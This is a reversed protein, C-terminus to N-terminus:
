FMFFIINKITQKIDNEALASIFLIHTTSKPLSQVAASDYMKSFQSLFLTRKQYSGTPCISNIAFQHLNSLFMSLINTPDGLCNVQMRYEFLGLSYM